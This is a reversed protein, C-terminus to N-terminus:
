KSIGESLHLEMIVLAILKIKASNSTAEDRSRQLELVKMM